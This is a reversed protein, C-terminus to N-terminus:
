YYGALRKQMLRAHPPSITLIAPHQVVFDDQTVLLSLDDLPVPRTDIDLIALPRFVFDSFLFCFKPLNPVEHRLADTYTPRISAQEIDIPCPEIIETDVDILPSGLRSHLESM